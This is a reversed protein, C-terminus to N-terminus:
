TEKNEERIKRLIEVYKAIQLRGDKKAERVDVDSSRKSVLGKPIAESELKKPKMNKIINELNLMADFAPNTPNYDAM